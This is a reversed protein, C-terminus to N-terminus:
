FSLAFSQTHLVKFDLYHLFFNVLSLTYLISRPNHNLNKEQDRSSEVQSKIIVFFDKHIHMNCLKALSFFDFLVSLIYEPNTLKFGQIRIIRDNGISKSIKKEHTSRMEAFNSMTSDCFRKSKEM